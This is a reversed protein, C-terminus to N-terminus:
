AWIKCQWQYRQFGKVKLVFERGQHQLKIFDGYDFNKTQTPLNSITFSYYEVTGDPITIKNAEGSPVVDCDAVFEYFTTGPHYDGNEDFYSEGNIQRYLKSAKFNLLSM